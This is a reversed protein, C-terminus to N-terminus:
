SFDWDSPSKRIKIATNITSIQSGLSIIMIFFTIFFPLKGSFSNVIAALFFCIINFIQKKFSVRFGCKRSFFTRSICFLIYAVAASIAAGRVGYNPVLIYNLIINPVVSIISVFINYYSKGSFPIGLTTTESITYLIPALALLGIIYQTEVYKVSLLLVILNKCLLLLFFLITMVLLLFDGIFSFHKLSKQEKNWRYATPVWFSTFATQVIQLMNAVKLAADYIGLDYYTSNGRLFLRGNSNLLSNVSAALVLPVGFVIMKKILRIDFFDLKFIFLRRHKIFLFIDGILQGIITSYVITSFDRRGTAILFLTCLFITLKVFISFASYELAREEMRISLLFFREFVSFVLMISFLYSIEKYESSNFLIRSFDEQFFCIIISILVSFSVPMILANMFLKKKNDSFNYERAYSQDIGLYIFTIILTQVVTFMSAKGFEHPNIFYTTIPVSAFSIVAGLIPGISFSVLRNIFKKM